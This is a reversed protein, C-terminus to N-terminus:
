RKSSRFWTVKPPIHARAQRDLSHYVKGNGSVTRVKRTHRYLSRMMLVARHVVLFSGSRVFRRYSHSPYPAAPLALLTSFWRRKRLSRVCARARVGQNHSPWREKKWRDSRIALTFAFSVSRFSSLLPSLLILLLWFMRCFSPATLM